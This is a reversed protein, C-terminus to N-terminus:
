IQWPSRCDMRMQLIRIAPSRGRRPGIFRCMIEWRTSPAFKKLIRGPRWSRDVNRCSGRKTGPSREVTRLTPWDFFESLWWANVPCFGEKKFEFLPMEEHEEFFCEEPDLGFVDGWEAVAAQLREALEATQRELKRFAPCLAM